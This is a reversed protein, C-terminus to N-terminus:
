KNSSECSGGGSLALYFFVGFLISVSTKTQGRWSSFSLAASFSSVISSLIGCTGSLKWYVCQRSTVPLVCESTGTAAVMMVLHVVIKVHVVKM